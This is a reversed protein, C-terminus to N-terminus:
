AVVKATWSDRAPVAKLKVPAADNGILAMTELPPTPYESVPTTLAVMLRLARDAPPAMQDHGNEWRSVTEPTVGIHRAFDSGSWGLYKRLFKVEAPMLRTNKGIVTEAIVRHLQEIHPIAVETEGCNACRRVEVPALVVPLGSARYDFDERRAAM